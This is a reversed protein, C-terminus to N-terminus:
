VLLVIPSMSLCLCTLCHSYASALSLGAAHSDNHTHLVCLAFRLASSQMMCRTCGVSKAGHHWPLVTGRHSPCECSFCALVVSWFANLYRLVVMEKPTQSKWVRCKFRMTSEVAMMVGLILFMFLPLSGRFALGNLPRLPLMCPLASGRVTFADIRLLTDQSAIIGAVQIYEVLLTMGAFQPPHYTLRARRTLCTLYTLLARTLRTLHHSAYASLDTPNM